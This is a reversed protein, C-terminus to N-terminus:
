ESAIFYLDGSDMTGYQGTKGPVDRVLSALKYTILNETFCPPIRLIESVEWEVGEVSKLTEILEEEAKGMEEEPIM